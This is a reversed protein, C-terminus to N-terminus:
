VKRECIKCTGYFELSHQRIDAFSKTRGLLNQYMDEVGCGTVDEIKGCRMCVLHHHDDNTGILEYHAHNHRLDIQRIIGAAKLQRVARYVTAQDFRGKLSDIIEQASPPLSARKFASLIALRAPTAKYGARRLLPRFEAGASIKKNRREM